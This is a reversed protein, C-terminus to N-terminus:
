TSGFLAGIKERDQASLPLEVARLYADLQAASHPGIIPATVDPHTMVWATALAAM